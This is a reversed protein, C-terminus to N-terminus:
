DPNEQVVNLVTSQGFYEVTISRDRIEQIRADGASEGINKLQVTGDPMAILAQCHGPEIITGSLRINLPPPPRAPPLAPPTPPPPDHLPRRLDVQCLQKLEDPDVVAQARGASLERSISSKIAVAQGFRGIPSVAWLISVIALAGM